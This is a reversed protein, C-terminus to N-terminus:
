LKKYVVTYTLGRQLWKEVPSLVVRLIRSLVKRLVNRQSSMGFLYITSIYWGHNNLRIGDPDSTTRHVLEAGTKKVFNTILSSPILELHQPAQVGFCYKKFLKFQISEPNPTSMALIGQPALHAVCQELVGWPDPLHEITHWMAIVDYTNKNESLAKVVDSTNTAKVETNSNIFNCCEQDMEIADVKFGAQQAGYAFGGYYSGIELMRGSKKFQQVFHVRWCSEKALVKLQELTQPFKSREKTLDNTYYDSLNPPIPFLFLLTCNKCRYYNFVTDDVRKDLDETQFYLVGPSGCHPCTTENNM